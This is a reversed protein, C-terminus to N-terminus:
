TSRVPPRGAATSRRTRPCCGSHRGSEREPRCSPGSSSSATRRTSSVPRRREKPDQPPRVHLRIGRAVGQDSPHSTGRRSRLREGTARTTSYSTTAGAAIWTKADYSYFGNGTDFDWKARDIEKGDFEDSWVLKWEAEHPQAPQQSRVTGVGTVILAAIAAVYASNGSSM